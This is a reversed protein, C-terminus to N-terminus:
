DPKQKNFIEKLLASTLRLVSKTQCTNQLANLMMFDHITGNVRFNIVEVGAEDLRRAYEEGEDRLVDNEATIIIAPPLGKLDEIPAKLISIYKDDRLREDPLYAEFVYEMAKKTLWPGNKFENYSNTKMSADCVPYYLVQAKMQPGSSLKARIITAAAMNAGASDGAIAMKENDINFEQPNYYVYDMVGYIENLATPYKAKPSRSYEVFFVASNTEIALKKILTGFVEKDGMVWGGGHAYIIAPLKEGSNKKPKAIRVSVEGAYETLITIDKLEAEIDIFDKKQLESLFERAEEATMEYLPKAGAAEIREIFEKVESSLNIKETM